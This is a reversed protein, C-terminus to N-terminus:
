MSLSLELETIAQKARVQCTTYRRLARSLRRAADGGNGQGQGEGDGGGMSSECEMGEQLANDARQILGALYASGAVGPSVRRAGDLRRRADDLLQSARLKADELMEGPTRRLRIEWFENAEDHYYYGHGPIHMLARRNAPGVCGMYLGQDGDDPRMVATFANVRHCISSPWPSGGLWAQEREAHSMRQGDERYREPASTSYIRAMVDVDIRGHAAKLSEFLYRNRGQSSKTSLAPALQRDGLYALDAPRNQVWGEVPNFAYGQDPALFGAASRPHMSNNNAYLFEYSRGQEDFSLERLIPDSGVANSPRAECVYAYRGDAYFGGVSGLITGVDGIPWGMENGLADAATDAFRLNHFVSAGRRLGYGRDSTEEIGHLGGGHHVYAVGKSNMGPHGAFFYQGLGPIFGNISFPTYIFAHGDDPFAAITVQFTCDHDTTSGSVLAGDSTAEGWACAGSCLDVSRDAHASSMSQGGLYSSDAQGEGEDLSDATLDRVGHGRIGSWIPEFHGTWLQIATWYNLEIGHEKAADIWGRVMEGIEPTNEQMHVHWNKVIEIEHARFRRAALREVPWKGFIDIIQQIYQRGMEHSSGRLVVIPCIAPVIPVDGAFEIETGRRSLEIAPLGEGALAAPDPETGDLLAEVRRCAEVAGDFHRAAEAADQASQTFAAFYMNSGTFRGAYWKAKAIMLTAADLAARAKVAHADAPSCQNLARHADYLAYQAAVAQAALSAPTHTTQLSAASHEQNTSMEM